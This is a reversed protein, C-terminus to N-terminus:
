QSITLYIENIVSLNTSKKKANEYTHIKYLYKMWIFIKHNLVFLYKLSRYITIVNTSINLHPFSFDLIESM